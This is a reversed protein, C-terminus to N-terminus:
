DGFIKKLDDEQSNIWKKFENITNEFDEDKILDGTLSDVLFEHKEDRKYEYNFSSSNDLSILLSLISISFTHLNFIFFNFFHM